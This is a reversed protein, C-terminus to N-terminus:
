LDGSNAGKLLASDDKRRAADAIRLLDAMEGSREGFSWLLDAASRAADDAKGLAAAESLETAVTNLAIILRSIFHTSAHEDSLGVVSARHELEVVRPLNLLARDMRM